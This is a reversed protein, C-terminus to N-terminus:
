GAASGAEKKRAFFAQQAAKQAPSGWLAGVGRAEAELGAARGERLGTRVVSKLEALAEGANRAISNALALTQDLLMGADVVENALGAELAWQASVPDGVLMMRLARSAGILAPLRQTGGWGPFSGLTIEPLGLRVTDAVVRLDCALALELGGGFAVGNIAAITPKAFTEIREFIAQGWRMHAYADEPSFDRQENIDAGASFAKSGAGTLVVVHTRTDAALNAFAEDLNQLLPKSLANMREPRNLTLVTVSDFRQQSITDM